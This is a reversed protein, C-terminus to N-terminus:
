SIGKSIIMGQLQFNQALQKKLAIAKDKDGLDGVIVQYIFGNKSDLKYSKAEYGLKKLRQILFKANEPQSFSALQVGYGLKNSPQQTITPPKEAVTKPAPISPLYSGYALHHPKSLQIKVERHAIEPSKTKEIPKVQKFVQKASPINLIPVEPKPPVKLHLVLNEEFRQNSKKMLGPIVFAAILILIVGGTLRFKAQEPIEFSM